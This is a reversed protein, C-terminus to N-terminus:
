LCLGDGLEVTIVSGTTFQRIHEPHELGALHKDVSVCVDGKHPGSLVAVDIDDITQESV